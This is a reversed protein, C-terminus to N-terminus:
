LVHPGYPQEVTERCECEPTPDAADQYERSDSLEPVVASRTSCGGPFWPHPLPRPRRIAAQPAAARVGVPERERVRSLRACLLRQELCSSTAISM